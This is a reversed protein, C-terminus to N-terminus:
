TRADLKELQRQYRDIRRDIRKKVEPDKSRARRDELIDLTMLIVFKQDQVRDRQYSDAWVIKSTLVEVGTWAAALASPIGIVMLAIALKKKWDKM